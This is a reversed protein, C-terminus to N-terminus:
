KPREEIIEELIFKLRKETNEIGSIAFAKNWHAPKSSKYYSVLGVAFMFLGWYIDVRPDIGSVPNLVFYVGTAILIVGYILFILGIFFRLDVFTAGRDTM